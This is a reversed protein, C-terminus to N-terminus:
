VAAPEPVRAALALGGPAVSVRVRARRGEARAALEPEVLPEQAAVPARVLVRAVAQAEVELVQAPLGVAEPAQALAAVVRVAVLARVGAAELALVEPVPGVVVAQLQPVLARVATALVPEQAAAMVVATAQVEAMALAEVLVLVVVATVQAATAVAAVQVQVVAPERAAAMVGATGEVEAMVAAVLAVAEVVLAFM